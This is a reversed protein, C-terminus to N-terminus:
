PTEYKECSNADPSAESTRSGPSVFGDARAHRLTICAAEHHLNCAAELLALARQANGQSQARVTPSGRCLDWLLGKALLTCASLDAGSCGASLFSKRHVLTVGECPGLEGGGLAAIACAPAFGLRCAREMLNEARDCRQDVGKGVAHLVSLRACALGNNRDCAAELLLAASAPLSQNELIRALNLCGRADGLECSARYGSEAADRGFVAGLGHEHMWGLHNCSSGHGLGCQTRCDSFDGLVCLHTVGPRAFACHHDHLFTSSPCPNTQLAQPTTSDTSRLLDLAVLHLRLPSACAPDLPLVGGREPHVPLCANLAEAKDGGAELFVERPTTFREPPGFAKAQVGVEMRHVFHTAGDCEGSLENRRLQSRMNVHEGAVLFALTMPDDLDMDKSDAWDTSGPINLRIEDIGQLSVSALDTRVRRAGYLGAASCPELWRLGRRDYAVVAVSGHM